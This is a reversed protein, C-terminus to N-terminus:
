VLFLNLWGLNNFKFIWQVKFGGLLVCTLWALAFWFIGLGFGQFYQHHWNEKPFAWIQPHKEYALYMLGIAVIELMLECVMTFWNESRHNISLIIDGAIESVLLWVFTMLFIKILTKIILRFDLKKM